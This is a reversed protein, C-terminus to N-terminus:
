SLAKLSGSNKRRLRATVLTLSGVLFLLMSTPEPVPASHLVLNYNDVGMTESGGPSGSDANFVTTFGWLPSAGTASFDPHWTSDVFFEGNASSLRGFSSAGLSESFSVWNSSSTDYEPGVYIQNDQELALNAFAKGIGAQSQLSLSFDVSSIPGQSSPSYTFNSNYLFATIGSPGATTSITVQYYGEERTRKSLAAAVAEEPTDSTWSGILPISRSGGSNNSAIGEGNCRGTRAVTQDALRSCFILPRDKPHLTV